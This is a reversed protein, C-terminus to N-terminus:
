IYGMLKYTLVGVWEKLLRSWAHIAEPDPVLFHEPAYPPDFSYFDTSFPTVALGQEQFCAAARRMHFASSVLLYPGDLAHEQLLEKSFHANEYTNRSKEELLIAEEPVGSLLMVRKMREAESISDGQLTGSGGSLLLKEVHGRKYLAVAHLIRDAGKHLHVRDYPGKNGATVGSLVIAVRHGPALDRYATGPTEWQLLVENTIFPNSFLIFFFFFMGLLLRKLGPKKVWLGALLFLLLLFLPNLLLGATKSLIFFM